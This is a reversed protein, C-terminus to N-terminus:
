LTTVVARLFLFLFVFRGVLVDIGRRRRSASASDIRYVPDDTAPMRGDDAARCGEAEEGGGELTARM